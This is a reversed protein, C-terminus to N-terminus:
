TAGVEMAKEVPAFPVGFSGFMLGVGVNQALAPSGAM